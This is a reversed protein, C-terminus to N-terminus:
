ESLRRAKEDGNLVRLVGWALARMEFTGPFVCVKALTQVRQTIQGTIFDSHALGGTLLIGDVKGFAVPVLSGIDKAIQMTMAECVLKALSNGGATMREVKRMDNTGLYAMVGGKGKMKKQMEDLSYQGSYCLKILARCPVGGSREPSFAGEDDAVIDLIKGSQILNTTFGGGLHSVIYTTDELRKGDRKAMEICVARSNLVHTLFPRPLEPIGSITYLEGPNGCGCVADYVYATIGSPEALEYAIIPALNSVHPALPKRSAEVFERDIVYAGSELQGIVGGRAAIASLENVALNMDRLYKQVAGRRFELQDDIDAFKRLEEMTHELTRSDIENQNEYLAVKTSTSGPNIVLIKKCDNM